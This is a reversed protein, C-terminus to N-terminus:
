PWRLNLAFVEQYGTDRTFIPSGDPAVNIQTAQYNIVRHIDKLSTITEIQHDAFRYRFVKPDAGETTYYLYKNDSSPDFNGIDGSIGPIDAWQQKKLNFVLFKTGQANHAMVSNESLWYGGSTGDSSPVASSKGTRLDAIQSGYPASAVKYFLYNGDPSWSAFFANDSIKQQQGGQMDVVFLENKATHFAVKTGDPSIAPFRANMPLFTLQLRETGDIRSRWVTHEPYSLYAVWKGDRSFTPDTASIGALFPVFAHSKMDYRVLEGRQKTGLVFIQKGNRSPIPLSYPLPGNTLRIPKGPRRFLGTQM